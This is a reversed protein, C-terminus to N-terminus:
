IKRARRHSRATALSATRPIIFSTADGIDTNSCMTPIGVGLNVIWGDQFEFAIRDAMQQRDPGQHNREDAVSRAAHPWLGEPHPPVKVVRHVFIGATHVQDPDIAGAPVIDEDVEAITLAGRDGDGPPQTAFPSVAPQRVHRGPIIERLDDFIQTPDKLMLDGAMAANGSIFDLGGMPAAEAIWSAVGRRPGNFTLEMKNASRGGSIKNESVLYNVDAFGTKELMERSQPNSQPLLGIVKHLDIGFVTSAGGQYAQAVRQGLLGTTFRPGGEDIQTNFERVSEMGLGMVVLDPRVLIIPADKKGPATSALEQADVIRARDTKDTFIEANMKELFEKIGPKRVEAVLM